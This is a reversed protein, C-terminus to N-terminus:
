RLEALNIIETTVNLATKDEHIIILAVTIGQGGSTRRTARVSIYQFKGYAGAQGFYLEVFGDARPSTM